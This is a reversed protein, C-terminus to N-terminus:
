QKAREGSIGYYRRFNRIHDVVATRVIPSTEEKALQQLKNFFPEWGWRGEPHYIADVMQQDTTRDGRSLLLNTLINEVPLTRDIIYNYHTGTRVWLVCARWGDCITRWRNGDKQLFFIESHGAQIDVVHSWPGSSAGRDVFYFIEMTKPALDGQIVHEVRVRVKWLQVPRDNWKSAEILGVPHCKELAQGVVILPVDKLDFISYSPSLPSMDSARNCGFSICMAVTAILGGAQRGFKAILKNHEVVPEQGQMVM